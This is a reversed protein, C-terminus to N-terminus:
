VLVGFELILSEIVVGPSSHRTVFCLKFIQSSRPQSRRLHSVAVGAVGAVGAVRCSLIRSLGVVGKSRWPHQAFYIYIRDSDIKIM